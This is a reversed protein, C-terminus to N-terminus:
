ITTWNKLPIINDYLLKQEESRLIIRNRHNFRYKARVHVSKQFVFNEPKPFNYRSKKGIKIIKEKKKKWFVYEVEIDIWLYEYLEKFYKLFLDDSFDMPMLQGVLDFPKKYKKSFNIFMNQFQRATKGM